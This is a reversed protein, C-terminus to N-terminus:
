LLGVLHLLGHELQQLLRPPHPFRPIGKDQKETLQIPSAKLDISVCELMGSKGPFREAPPRAADRVDEFQISPTTM